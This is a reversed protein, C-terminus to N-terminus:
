DASRVNPLAARTRSVIALHARLDGSTRRPATPPSLRDCGLLALGAGRMASRALSTAATLYPDIGPVVGLYFLWSELPKDFAGFASARFARAHDHANSLGPLAILGNGSQAAPEISEIHGNNTRIRAGRQEAEGPHSVLWDVDMSAM